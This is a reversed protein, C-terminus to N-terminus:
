VDYTHRKRPLMRGAEMSKTDVINANEKRDGDHDEVELKETITGYKTSQVIM